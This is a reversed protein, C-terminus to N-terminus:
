EGKLEELENQARRLTAELRRIRDERDAEAVTSNASMQPQAELGFVKAKTFSPKAQRLARRAAKSEVFMARVEKLFDKTEKVVLLPVWVSPPVVLRGITVQELHSGQMLQVATGIAVVAVVASGGIHITQKIPFKALNRSVMDHAQGIRERLSPEDLPVRSRCINLQCFSGVETRIEQVEFGFEALASLVLDSLQRGIPSSANGTEVYVAAPFTRLFEFSKSKADFSALTLLTFESSNQPTM